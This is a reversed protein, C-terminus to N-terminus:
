APVGRLRAFELADHASFVRVGHDRALLRLRERNRRRAVDDVAVARQFLSLTAPCRPADPRLEDAHFYADGAHLLPAAGGDDVAVAVHGRSHGITPVLFIEPPVGELQRVAEFGLWREGEVRYRRWKPGHAWQIPRYREREKPTARALAAELEAEYVHVTAEPFDALGGVHDLDLHTAVIHRVDSRRHGLAEVQTAACEARDFRPRASLRFGAGLRDPDSVDALGLGTDILVLGSSTEVLLCHCVLRSRGGGLVSWGFPCFTACNLHHM